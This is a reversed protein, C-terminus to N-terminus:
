ARRHAQVTTVVTEVSAIPTRPLIGHGLNFVHGPLGRAAALVAETQRKVEAAPSFLACPDLNGQLCFRGNLQEAARDLPTRWDVGIVDAGSQAVADTLHAANLAFYIVPVGLARIATVLPQVYRLAFERYLDPGLLGAWTDFLQIAQAGAAVQATLHTETARAIKGLLQHAARPDTYFLGKVHDFNKSGGGEVLYACLTFPAAAFGILPARGELERRLIKIAEYVYGLADRPDADPIREIRAADRAPDDLQPGPNFDIAFGMPEALVLIDSFLIAADFGFRDIPQLTVKVALEPTKCLTVFDVEARVERYEPLYRGAQRMIWVPPREVAECRCARLFLHDAAASL